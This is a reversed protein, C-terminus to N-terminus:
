HSVQYLSFLRAPFPAYWHTSQQGGCLEIVLSGSQFSFPLHFQWIILCLILTSAFYKKAFLIWIFRRYNETLNKSPYVFYKLWWEFFGCHTLHGAWVQARPCDHGLGRAKQSSNAGDLWAWCVDTNLWLWTSVPSSFAWSASLTKQCGQLCIVSPFSFYGCYPM